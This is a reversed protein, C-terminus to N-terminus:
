ALKRRVFRRFFIMNTSVTVLDSVSEALVVAYIGWPLIAPLIYLLPILLIVKRYFSFFFASRGEGMATYSQQCTSNAGLGITGFIYVPMLKAGLEVLAADSSFISMVAKPFFVCILTGAAAVITNVLMGLRITEKVRDFRKAGYNFSIIPQSGQTIGEIPLLLFQFMSFLVTMAGVALDGGYKLVQMNFSIHMVGESASFFFPTIGLALMRKMISWQPKLNHLRVRLQNRKGFVFFMVWGFSFMQSVVTALAAGEVGMDLGFIFLPDL